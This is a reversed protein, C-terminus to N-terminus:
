FTGPTATFHWSQGNLLFIQNSKATFIDNKGRGQFIVVRGADDFFIDYTAICGASRKGIYKLVKMYSSRRADIRAAPEYVRAILPQDPLQRGNSALYINSYTGAFLNSEVDISYEFFDPHDTDRASVSRSITEVARKVAGHHAKDPPFRSLNIYPM